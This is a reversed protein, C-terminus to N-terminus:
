EILVCFDTAAVREIRERVERIAASSGILPAAGDARNRAALPPRGQAREVELLLGALQTAADLVQCTWGDLMRAPDFVAEIRARTHSASAPIDFCMVDPAAPEPEDRVAISRARVLHRLEEEFRERLQGAERGTALGRAVAGVLGALGRRRDAGRRNARAVTAAVAPEATVMAAGKAEHTERKRRGFSTGALLRSSVPTM